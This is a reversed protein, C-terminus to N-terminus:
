RVQMENAAWPKLTPLTSRRSVVWALLMLGIFGISALSVLIPQAPSFANYGEAWSESSLSTKM